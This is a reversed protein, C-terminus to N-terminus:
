RSTLARAQELQDPTMKEALMDRWSVLYDDGADIAETLWVYAQASDNHAGWGLQMYVMKSLREGNKESKERLQRSYGLAQSFDGSERAEDYSRRGMVYLAISDGAQARCEMSQDGEACEIEEAYTLSVLYASWLTIALLPVLAITAWSRCMSYNLYRRDNQMQLRCLKAPTM